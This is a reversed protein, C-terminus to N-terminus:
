NKPASPRDNPDSSMSEKSGPISPAIKTSKNEDAPAETQTSPARAPPMPVQRQGCGAILTVFTAIVTARM